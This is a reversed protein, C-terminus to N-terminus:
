KSLFKKKEQGSLTSIKNKQYIRPFPQLLLGGGTPSTKYFITHKQKPGYHRGSNTNMPHPKSPKQNTSSSMVKLSSSLEQSFDREQSV